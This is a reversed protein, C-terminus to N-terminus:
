AISGEKLLQGEKKLTDSIEPVLRLAVLCCGTAIINIAGNQTSNNRTKHGKMKSRKVKASRGFKGKQSAKEKGATLRLKAPQVSVAFLEACIM